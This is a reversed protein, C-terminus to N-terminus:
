NKNNLIEKKFVDWERVNDPNKIYEELRRKLHEKQTESVKDNESEKIQISFIKAFKLISEINQDSM